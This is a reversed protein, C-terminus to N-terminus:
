ADTIEWYLCFWLFPAAWAETQDTSMRLLNKMWRLRLGWVRKLRGIQFSGGAWPWEWSAGAAPPRRCIARWVALASPPSLLCVCGPSEVALCAAPHQDFQLVLLVSLSECTLTLPFELWFDLDHKIHYTHDIIIIYSLTNLAQIFRNKFLNTIWQDMWLSRKTGSHILWKFLDTSYIVCHSM